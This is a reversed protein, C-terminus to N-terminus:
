MISLPCPTTSIPTLERQDDALIDLKDDADVVALLSALEGNELTYSQGQSDKRVFTDGLILHPTGSCSELEDGRFNVELEGLVKSYEWAQVVCVKQGDRNKVMTPYEGSSNLGYASFNGLLTHSDGDVIIDIDTVLPSLAKVNEYGYHSLLIIKRIGNAKLEDVAAQTSSVEDKFTVEDSPQSSDRTKGAITLGIIGIKQGNVEKIVYPAYLGYLVNGPPVEINASILPADVMGIFGALWDDGDDFEHNGIAMADFGIANMVDADAQGQFLTYYLTGQVTDGAHLVLHNKGKGTLEKIKSAVRAMGGIECGTAMGDFTLDIQSPDLHSHVDNVHLIKLTLKSDGGSGNCGTLVLSALTLFVLAIHLATSRSDIRKM